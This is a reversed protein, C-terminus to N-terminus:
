KRVKEFLKEWWAKFVILCGGLFDFGMDLLSFTRSPVYLQHFEDIVGYVATVAIAALIAKRKGFRSGCSLARAVLYSLVLFMPVHLISLDINVAPVPISSVYFIFGAYIIVPAWYKKFSRWGDNGGFGHGAM